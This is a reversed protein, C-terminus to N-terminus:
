KVVGHRCETSEADGESDHVLAELEREAAFMLPKVECLIQGAAIDGAQEFVLLVERMKMFLAQCAPYHTNLAQKAEKVMDDVTKSM